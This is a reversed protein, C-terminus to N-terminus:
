WRDTSGRVLIGERNVESLGEHVGESIARYTRRM